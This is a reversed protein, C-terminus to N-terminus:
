KSVNQLKLRMEGCDLETEPLLGLEVASGPHGEDKAKRKRLGSGHLRHLACVVSSHTRLDLPAQKPSFSVALMM